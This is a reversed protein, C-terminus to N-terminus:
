PDPFHPMTLLRGMPGCLKPIISGPNSRLCESKLDVGQSMSCQMKADSISSDQEGGREHLMRQFDPTTVIEAWDKRQDAGQSSKM